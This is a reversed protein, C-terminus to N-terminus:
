CGTKKAAGGHAMKKTCSPKMMAKVMRKDQAADSHKMTGGEAMKAAARYGWNYTTNNRPM